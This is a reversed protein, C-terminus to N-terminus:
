INRKFWCIPSCLLSHSVLQSKDATDVSSSKQSSFHLYICIAVGCGIDPNSCLSLIYVNYALGWCALYAPWVDVPLFYVIFLEREVVAALSFRYILSRALCKCLFQDNFSFNKWGKWPSCRTHGRQFSKWETQLIQSLLDNRTLGCMSYVRADKRFEAWNRSFLLLDYNNIPFIWVAQVSTQKGEIELLPM